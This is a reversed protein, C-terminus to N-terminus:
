MLLDRLSLKDVHKYCGRKLTTKGTLADAVEDLFNTVPNGRYCCVGAGSFFKSSSVVIRTM